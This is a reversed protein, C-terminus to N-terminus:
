AKKRRSFGLGALGLGLLALSAPEPVATTEAISITYGQGGASSGYGAFGALNGGYNGSYYNIALLYDGAALFPAVYSECCSPFDDNFALTNGALDFVFLMPDFGTSTSASFGGGAWSFRYIDVSELQGTISTTGGAVLQATALSFGADGTEFHPVALAPLSALLSSAALVIATLTKKM